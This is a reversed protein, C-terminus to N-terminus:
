LQGAIELNNVTRGAVSSGAVNPKSGASNSCIAKIDRYHDNFLDAYRTTVAKYVDSNGERYLWRKGGTSGGDSGSADPTLLKRYLVV